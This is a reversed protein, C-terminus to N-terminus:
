RDIGSVVVLALVVLLGLVAAVAAADLLRQAFRVAGPPAAGPGAPTRASWRGSRLEVVVARLAFVGAVVAALVWGLRSLQDFGAAYM